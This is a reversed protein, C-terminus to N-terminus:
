ARDTVGTDPPSSNSGVSKAIDDLSKMEFVFHNAPIAEVLPEHDPLPEHQDATGDNDRDGGFRDTPPQESCSM